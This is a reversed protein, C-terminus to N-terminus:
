RSSCAITALRISRMRRGCATQTARAGSGSSTLIALMGNNLMGLMQGAFAEAKKEDLAQTTM